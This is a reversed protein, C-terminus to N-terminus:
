RFYIFLTRTLKQKGKNPNIISGSYGVSWDSLKYEVVEKEKLVKMFSEGELFKFEEGLQTFPAANRHETHFPLIRTYEGNLKKLLEKVKM